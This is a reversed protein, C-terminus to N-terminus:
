QSYNKIGLGPGCACSTHMIAVLDCPPVQKKFDKRYKFQQWADQNAMRRVMQIKVLTSSLINMEATCTIQKTRTTDGHFETGYTM